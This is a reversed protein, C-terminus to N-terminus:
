NSSRAQEDSDSLLPLDAWHPFLEKTLDRMTELASPTPGRRTREYQHVPVQATAAAPYAAVQPISTDLISIAGRSPAKSERRLGEMITQADATRELMSIVGYLHGVPAGLNAMPRLRELMGVTETAFAQAALISPKIPSLLFDGALVGADQIVGTAGRTDILVIDYGSVEQIAFKLRVRGDPMHLMWNELEGLSDNSVVLDCGVATRSITDKASGTTILQQLGAPAAETIPFYRSLAPQVDADILLVRQGLDALYAGLNATLTTKGVGGKTSCVTVALTHEPM